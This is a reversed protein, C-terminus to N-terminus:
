ATTSIKLGTVTDIKTGDSMTLINNKTDLYSGNAFQIISAPDVYLAGNTTDYQTGDPKTMINNVTDISTGDSFYIYPDLVNEEKVQNQSASLDKLLKQLIKGNRQDQAQSALQAYYASQSSQNNQTITAFNGAITSSQSLFSSVSGDGVNQLAGLIGASTQSSQIAVLTDNLWNSQGSLVSGASSVSSMPMKGFAHLM